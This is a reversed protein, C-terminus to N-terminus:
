RGEGARGGTGPLLSADGGPGVGDVVDAGDVADAPEILVGRGIMRALVVIVEARVADPLRWWGVAADEAVGIGAGAAVPLDLVTQM